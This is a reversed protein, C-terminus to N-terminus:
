EVRQSDELLRNFEIAKEAIGTMSSARRTLTEGMEVLAEDSERQLQNGVGLVVNMENRVNHRLVRNLVQLRQQRRFLPTVDQSVLARGITEGRWDTVPPAKVRYTRGQSEFRTPQDATTAVGMCDLVPTM